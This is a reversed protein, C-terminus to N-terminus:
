FITLYTYGVPLSYGTPLSTPVLYALLNYYNIEM